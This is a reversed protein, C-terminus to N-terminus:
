GRVSRRKAQMDARNTCGKIDAQNVDAGAALKRNHRGKIRLSGLLTAPQWSEITGEKGGYAAWYLPDAVEVSAMETSAGTAFLWEVVLPHGNLTAIYFPTKQTFRRSTWQRM